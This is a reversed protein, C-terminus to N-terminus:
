QRSLASKDSTLGSGGLSIPSRSPIAVMLIGGVAVLVGSTLLGAGVRTTDLSQLCVPPTVAASSSQSCHGNQSLAAAGFGLTLLGGGMLISGVTVRWTPRFSHRQDEATRRVGSPELSPIPASTPQRVPPPVTPPAEQISDNEAQKLFNQAKALREPDTEVGSDLFQRFRIVAEKAQGTQQFLRGINFCLRPDPFEEYAALMQSLAEQKNTRATAMASNVTALCRPEEACM